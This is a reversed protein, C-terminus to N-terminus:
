QEDVTQRLHAVLRKRSEIQDVLKEKDARYDALQGAHYGIHYNIDDLEKEGTIISLELLQIDDILKIEPIKTKVATETKAPINKAISTKKITKM